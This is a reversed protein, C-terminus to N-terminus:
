PHGKHQRRCRDSTDSSKQERRSGPSGKQQDPCCLAKAQRLDSIFVLVQRWSQGGQGLFLEFLLDLSAAQELPM